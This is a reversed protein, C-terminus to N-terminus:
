CLHQVVFGDKIAYGVITSDAGLMAEKHKPSGIWAAVGLASDTATLLLNEGGGPKQCEPALEGSYIFGSKDAKNRHANSEMYDGSALENVKITAGQTLRPDITLPAVGVKAREINVLEHIREVSLEPAVTVISTQQAEVPKDTRSFLIASYIGGLLALTIALAIMGRKM